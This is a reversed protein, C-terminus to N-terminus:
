NCPASIVQGSSYKLPDWNNTTNNQKFFKLGSDNESLFRLFNTENIDVYNKGEEDHKIYIDYMVRTVVNDKFKTAFATFEEVNQIRLMYQRGYYNPLTFSFSYPNNINGDKFLNIFDDMDAISFISVSKGDIRFHNHIVGDLKENAGVEYHVGLADPEGISLTEDVTTTTSNSFKYAYERNGSTRAKVSDLIAKFESNNALVNVSDCPNNTPVITTDAGGNGGAGPECIAENTSFLYEESILVGNEWTQWYWEIEVWECGEDLPADRHAIEPSKKVSLKNGTYSALNNEAVSEHIFSRYLRINSGIHSHDKVLQQVSRFTYNGPAM